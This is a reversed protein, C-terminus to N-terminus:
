PIAAAASKEGPLFRTRVWRNMPESYLRSVACGLLGAVVIASVFLLPVGRLPKGLHVFVAFLGLVPFMHTLYIEYSYRGLGLVPALFRPARWASQSAATMALCVGVALVTFGLGSRGLGWRYGVDSLCLSFGVLGWGAWGAARVSRRSLTRGRLLMATLCGLAIADMGGLYSYERWVPNMNFPRIRAFPGAVIFGCLVAILTRQRKCIRAVLPFFLYFMEEVSLSWLIDWNGPLYGRTAELWNIHFTLAAVLARGLGGTKASVVYNPLHAFHLGCLLGLLLLMLPAIRAFRLLYFSKVQLADATGWRRISTSTILFGSIAFFM